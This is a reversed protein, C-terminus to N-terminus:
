IEASGPRDRIGGDRRQETVGTGHLSPVSITWDTHGQTEPSRGRAHGGSGPTLDELGSETQGASCWLHHQRDDSDGPNAKGPLPHSHPIGAAVRKARSDEYDVIAFGDKPNASNRFKGDIFKNTQSAFGEGGASFGYLERWKRADWTGPWARFTGEYQNPAGITLERMMREDKVTWPKSLLGICGIRALDEELYARESPEKSIALVISRLTLPTKGTM